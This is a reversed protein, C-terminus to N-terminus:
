AAEALDGNREDRGEATGEDTAAIVSVLAVRSAPLSPRIGDDAV